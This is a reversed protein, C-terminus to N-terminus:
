KCATVGRPCNDSSPRLVFAAAVGGAVVVGIATWFWWRRYVPTAVVQVPPPAPVAPRAQRAESSAVAFLRSAKQDATAPGALALLLALATWRPM